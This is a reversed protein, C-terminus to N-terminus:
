PPRADVHYAVTTLAIPFVYQSHMENGVCEEDLPPYAVYVQGHLEGQDCQDGCVDSATRQCAAGVASCFRRVSDVADNNFDAPNDVNLLCVETLGVDCLTNWTTECTSCDIAPTLDTEVDELADDASDMLMRTPAALDFTYLTDRAKLTRVHGGADFTYVSKLGFKWFTVRYLEDRGDDWTDVRYNTRYTRVSIRRRSQAEATLLLAALTILNSAQAM